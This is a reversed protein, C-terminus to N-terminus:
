VRWEGRWREVNREAMAEVLEAANRCARGAAGSRRQGLWVMWLEAEVDEVEVDM